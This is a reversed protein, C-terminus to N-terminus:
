SSQPSSKLFLVDVEFTNFRSSSPFFFFFGGKGKHRKVFVGNERHSFILFDFFFIEFSFFVFLFLLFSFSFFFFSFARCMPLSLRAECRATKRGREQSKASPWGQRLVRKSIKEQGNGRKLKRYRGATRWWRQDVASMEDHYTDDAVASSLAEYCLLLM